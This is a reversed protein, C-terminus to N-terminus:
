AAVLHLPKTDLERGIDSCYAETMKKLHSAMIQVNTILGRYHHSLASDLTTSEILAIAQQEDIRRPMGSECRFLIQREINEQLLKQLESALEFSKARSLKKLLENLPLTPGNLNVRLKEKIDYISLSAEPEGQEIYEGELFTEILYRKAEEIQSCPLQNYKAIKFHRNFRSWVMAKKKGDPSITSVIAQLDSQMAPLITTEYKGTKRIAPLVEATVWKRFPKAEPKRSKLVAHYMGSESIITMEQDGSPTGVIRTGKEDDDLMRTMKDADRYNLSKAIDSAVFWAEGDIITTRVQTSNFAFVAFQNNAM